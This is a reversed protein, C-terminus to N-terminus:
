AQETGQFPKMWLDAAKRAASSRGLLGGRALGFVEYLQSDSVIGEEAARRVAQLLDEGLPQIDAWDKAAQGSSRAQPDLAASLRTIDRLAPTAAFRLFHKSLSSYARAGAFQHLYPAAFMPLSSLNVIASAASGGLFHLAALTRYKDAWSSKPEKLFKILESARDRYYGTDAGDQSWFQKGSVELYKMRSYATLAEFRKTLDPEVSLQEYVRSESMGSLEQFRAQLASLETLQEPTLDAQRNMAHVVRASMTTQAASFGTSTVFEGITRMLDKSYGAVGKRRQLKNQLASESQIMLKALRSKEAQTLTVGAQDATALFDWYSSASYRDNAAREVTLPEGQGVADIDLVVDTQGQFLTRLEQAAAKAEGISEFTYWQMPQGALSLRGASDTHKASTHYVGIAFEGHRKNPIFGSDIRRQTVAYLEALTQNYIEPDPLVERMRVAKATFEAMLGRKITERIQDYLERAKPTLNAAYKPDGFFEATPVGADNHAFLARAAAEFEPPPQGLGQGKIWTRQIPEMMTSILYDSFQQMPRLVNQFLNTFGKSRGSAAIHYPSTIRRDLALRLSRAAGSKSGWAALKQFARQF